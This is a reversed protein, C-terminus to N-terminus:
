EGCRGACVSLNKYESVSDRHTKDTKKGGGESRTLTRSTTKKRENM